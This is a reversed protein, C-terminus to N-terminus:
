SPCKVGEVWYITGSAKATHGHGTLDTIDQGEAADFRWYAVLGPTLPDVYCLNEQLQSARLAINWVRAESIYGDLRRGDASYGIHFGGAWDWSFDIVGRAAETSTVQKGDIYLEMASGTYVAAVHYWRGTSFTENAVLQFKGKDKSSSGYSVEGGALMLQDRNISVDGFRLLFKEEIGIISSIYPNSGHFSNAYVRCEMTVAPMEALEPNGLFSPVTFYTSKRLDVARTILPKTVTIYITRSAELVSMGNGEVSLISIPVCYTIGGEMGDTSHIIFEVQESVNEGSYLLAKNSSLSYSGEPLTSYSRGKKKNLEDILEPRIQLNIIMDSSVKDSATVTLGLSTPGDAAISVINSSETGTFFIVDRYEASEKCATTFIMLISLISILHKM